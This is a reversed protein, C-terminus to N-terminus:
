LYCQHNVLHSSRNVESVAQPNRVETKLHMQLITEKLVNVLKENYDTCIKSENHRDNFKTVTSGTMVEVLNQSGRGMSTLNYGGELFTVIRGKANRDAIENMRSNIMAIGSTTLGLNTLPDEFHADFGASVLVFDPAFADALPEVLEDYALRYSEDGAGPYMALNVNYGRGDGSGIEDPFGSGPFLTRGDQHLGIYMVDKRDYFADQTGNGHHADYDLILVREIGHKSTLHHAAVAINNIFCFGFARSTEAHHGPPRCLVFGNSSKRELVRNVAMVGGGAALLSAEYTYKNVSTDLTFFGGGMNSKERVQDIYSQHHLPLIDDLEAYKPTVLNIKENEFFGAKTIYNLATTLREPSEPHGPQLEHKTFLEHFVIDTSMVSVGNQFVQYLEEVYIGM